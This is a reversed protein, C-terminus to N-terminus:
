RRIVPLLPPSTILLRPGTYKRPETHKTLQKSTMQNTSLLPLQVAAEPTNHAVAADSPLNQKYYLGLYGTFFVTSNTSDDVAGSSKSLFAPVTRLLFVFSPVLLSTGAM